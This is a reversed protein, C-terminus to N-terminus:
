NSIFPQILNTGSICPSCINRLLGGERPSQRVGIQAVLKTGHLFDSTCHKSSHATSEAYTFAVERTWGTLSGEEEEEELNPIDHTGGQWDGSPTPLGFM